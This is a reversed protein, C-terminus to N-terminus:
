DGPICRVTFIISYMLVGFIKCNRGCNAQQLESTALMSSNFTSLLHLFVSPDTAYRIGEESKAGNQERLMEIVEGENKIYPLLVKHTALVLSAVQLHTESRSDSKKDAHRELIASYEQKLAPLITDQKEKLAPHMHCRDQLGKNWAVFVQNDLWQKLGPAYRFSDLM